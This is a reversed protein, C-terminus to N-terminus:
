GECPDPCKIPSGSKCAKDWLNLYMTSTSKETALQRKLEVIEAAQAVILNRLEENSEINM